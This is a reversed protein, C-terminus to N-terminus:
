EGLVIEVRRNRRRGAETDNDAIPKSSGFGKAEIRGSTLGKRTLYDKVAAARKESLPINQADAGSNDTHGYIGLKLGEAVVASEFIEDLMRYSTPRITASGTEFEISYSKSSVAETIQDAYKTEIAKGELLEPHNSIVSLLFSKDVAKEYPMFSPMLSPYMKVMLNGFTNYV